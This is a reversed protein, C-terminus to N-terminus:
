DYNLERKHAENIVSNNKNKLQELSECQSNVMVNAQNGKLGLNSYNSSCNHMGEVVNKPKTMGGLQKDLIDKRKVNKEKYLENIDNQINLGKATKASENNLHNSMEQQTLGEVLNYNGCILFIFILGILLFIIFKYNKSNLISDLSKKLNVM